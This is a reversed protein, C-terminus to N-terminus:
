RRRLSRGALSLVALLATAFAGAEPVGATAAVATGALTQGFNSRWLNYDNTDVLGNGTGDAALGPGSQGLTDRWVTYDAADVRGDDNYDGVLSPPQLDWGIDDLAAADLTTFLKRSGSTITPDMATEQSNTTGYVTSSTGEIWHGGSVSPFAGGNATLSANGLFSGGSALNSWEESTGFGLAHGLEHLAVSFFDNKFRAVPVTHNYHWDTSGDSDFTIAGGWRVFDAPSEGRNEITDSFSANIANIQNIEDQSFFQGNGGSSFGYGGPGGIGLTNGGLAQGGAYVRYEDASIPPNSLSVPAGTTPNSFTADWNWTYVGGFQSSVLPAPTQIASLTDTLITSFYSAAADLSARAQAGATPGNPNGGGFFGASDYSYDIRVTVGWTPAAM